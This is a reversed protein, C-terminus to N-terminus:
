TVCSFPEFFAVRRVHLKAFGNTGLSTHQPFQMHEEFLFVWSEATEYSYLILTTLEEPDMLLEDVLISASPNAPSRGFRASNNM